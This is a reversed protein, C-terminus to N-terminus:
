AFVLVLAIGLIFLGVYLCVEFREQRRLQKREEIDARLQQIEDM